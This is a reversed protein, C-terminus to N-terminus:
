TAAIGILELLPADAIEHGGDFSLVRPQMGCGRM